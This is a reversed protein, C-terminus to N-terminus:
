IAAPVVTSTTLHLALPEACMPPLSFPLTPCVKVSLNFSMPSVIQVFALMIKGREKWQVLAAPNPAHNPAPTPSRVRSPRSNPDPQM